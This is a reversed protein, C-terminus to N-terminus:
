FGFHKESQVLLFALDEAQLQIETRGDVVVITSEVIVLVIVFCFCPLALVMVGVLSAVDTKVVVMVADTVVVNVSLTDEVVVLEVVAVILETRGWSMKAIPAYM